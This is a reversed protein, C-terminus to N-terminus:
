ESQLATIPTVRAARVAPIYTAVTSAVVVAVTAAGFTMPDTATVGFLLGAMARTGGVAGALGIVVGIAAYSLSHRVVMGVVEHRQAGLAMRVAIERARQSVTYSTVGYVGVLALLLAVAAFASLLMTTFRPQAVSDALFENMTRMRYVPQQADIGRVANTMAASVATRDLGSRVVLTMGGFQFQRYPLIMEPRAERSFGHHRVSGAVAIIERPRGYLMLRQGLPNEGPFIQRAMTENIIAVPTSNPGDFETFERGSLLPIRMARFYGITAIRFDAQPEEGPPPKPKGEVIIPLDYDTGVPNLPLASVAGVSEIGPVKKLRDELEAFFVAPKSDLLPGADPRLPRYQNPDVPYKVHALLIQATFVHEPRFGLDLDNLKILSRIMLGAGALLIVSLGVETALLASRLRSRVPTADNTRRTADSLRPTAAHIAPIMGFAVGTILAAAAVFLLVTLDIGLRDIRPLDPPRIAVLVRLLWVALVTGAVGGIVALTVSETLLQRLLRSRGAGLAARMAIERRRASTRVLLLGAVNACAILLVVGVTAFLIVLALRVDEVLVDHARVITVDPNSTRNDAAIRRAIVGLDDFAREVSVGNKLRGMVSLAHLRRGTLADQTLDLPAYLDVPNGEPFRFWAPMVGVVTFPAGDLTISRGIVTRDGGFQRHWFESTLVAVRDRRREEDETFVRGVAAEARLVRFLSSSASLAFLQEPSEVNSLAYERFRYAGLEDFVANRQRWDQYNLPAVPDRDKGIATNREWILVLRNPDAYPLPELLVAHIVSFIATNAGIGLALTVIAIVSFGLDRRIMRLAYRADQGAQTLLAGARVGRTEDTVADVSGFELLAARRAADPPLGAAIKEDSLLEMYSRVDERLEADRQEGHTVNRGLTWLWRRWSRRLRM